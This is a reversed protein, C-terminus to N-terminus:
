YSLTLLVWSGAASSEHTGVWFVYFVRSWGLSYVSLKDQFLCFHGCMHLNTYIWKDYTHTHAHIFAIMIYWCFYKSINSFTLTVVRIQVNIATQKQGSVTIYNHCTIMSAERCRYLVISFFSKFHRRFKWLSFLLQAVTLSQFYKCAFQRMKYNMSCAHM